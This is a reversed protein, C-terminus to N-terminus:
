YGKILAKLNRGLVDGYETLCLTDIKKRTKEAVDEQPTHDFLYATEEESFAPGDVIRDMLKQNMPCINQCSLCGVLCNHWLPDLWKPFEGPRENHFTICQEAHILFREPVIAQTPCADLCATCGDCTKLLKFDGWNDELCPLDSIYVAPRHFSGMGTVYTINNKGYRALGSRAAILKEPLRKKVLRFGEPKLVSELADKIHHDTAMDYTPPIIVPFIRGQYAVTIRVQPQPAAVIIVSATRDFTESVNFDFSALYEEYLTEDLLGNERHEEIEKHLEGLHSISVIKGKWGKQAFREYIQNTINDIEM